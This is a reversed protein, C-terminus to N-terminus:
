MIDSIFSRIYDSHYLTQNISIMNDENLKNKIYIMTKEPILMLIDLFEELDNEFINKSQEFSGSYEDITYHTINDDNSFNILLM